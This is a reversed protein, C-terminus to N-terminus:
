NQFVALRFSCAVLLKSWSKETANANSLTTYFMVTLTHLKLTASKSPTIYMKSFTSCNALLPTTYARGAQLWHSGQIPFLYICNVELATASYAPSPSAGDQLLPLETKDAENTRSNTVVQKVKCKCKIKNKSSCPSKNINTAGGWSNQTAVESPATTPPPLLLPEGQVPVPITESGRLSLPDYKADLFPTSCLSDM